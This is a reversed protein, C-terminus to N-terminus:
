YLGPILRATRSAYGHYSPFAEMLVQEEYHMRWFQSAAAALMAILPWPQELECIRGFVICLEALYLPHRVYRYPGDMVLSRAQPLISFSRGLWCLSVISALMGLFVVASSFIAICPTPTVHPLMLFCFPLLCGVTGAVKPLFGKANRVPPLRIIVLLIALSLFLITTIQPFLAIEDEGSVLVQLIKLSSGIIGLGLWIVLPVVAGLECLKLRSCKIMTKREKFFSDKKPGVAATEVISPQVNQQNAGSEHDLQKTKISFFMTRLRESLASQFIHHTRTIPM